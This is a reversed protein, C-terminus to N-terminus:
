LVNFELNRTMSKGLEICALIAPPIPLTKPTSM